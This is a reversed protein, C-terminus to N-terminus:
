TWSELRSPHLKGRPAILTHPLTVLPYELRYITLQLKYIYWFLLQKVNFSSRWFNGSKWFKCWSCFFSLRHRAGLWDFLLRRRRASKSLGAASSVTLKNATQTPSAIGADKIPIIQDPVAPSRRKTSRFYETISRQPTARDAPSKRRKSNSKKEEQLFRFIPTLWLLNLNRSGALIRTFCHRYAELPGHKLRFVTEIDVPFGLEYGLFGFEYDFLMWLYFCWGVSAISYPPYFYTSWQLPSCSCKFGSYMREPSEIGISSAKRVLHQRIAARLESNTAIWIRWNRLHLISVMVGRNWHLMQWVSAYPLGDLEKTEINLPLRCARQLWGYRISDSKKHTFNIERTFVNICSSCRPVQIEHRFQWTLLYITRQFFRLNIGCIKGHM